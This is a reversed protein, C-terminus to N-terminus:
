GILHTPLGYRRQMGWSTAGARKGGQSGDAWAGDHSNPLDQTLSLTVVTM